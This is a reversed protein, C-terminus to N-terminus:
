GNILELLYNRTDSLTIHKDYVSLVQELMTGDYQSVGRSNRGAWHKIIRTGKRFQDSLISCLRTHIQRKEDIGVVYVMYVSKETSLFDLLKDVNYGKPNSSLFLVKTKIDTATYFEDFERTYDSLGDATFITPLVQNNNLSDILQRKLDDGNSTILYEIIRGRLNVNEIFAAIVIESSVASVRAGLDNDLVGYLSSDLFKISRLASQMILEKHTESPVFKLGTPQINNTEEVLRVLNEEFEYNEHSTFLFEFNEPSNDVDEFCRMIDSGNFSGKINDIRLAHSSHSIKRLFTSNAILLVNMLPTVVCVFFPIRDYKQLASLSLVTNSFNTKEAKCFRIAYNPSYFVSRDQVLAFKQQM